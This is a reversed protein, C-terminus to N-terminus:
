KWPNGMNVDMLEKRYFKCHSNVVPVNEIGIPSYSTEAIRKTNRCNKSLELRCGMSDLWSLAEEVIENNETIGYFNGNPQQVLQNRDYFVYLSGNQIEAIASLAKIENPRFDQGEDVVIHRYDWDYADYNNLYDAVDERTKWHGKKASTLGYITHFDVGSAQAAHQQKLFDCLLRNFCLFLVRGTKALRKAKEVALLTKGTGAGGQIAAVRQEELYDLLGSQEPTMRLFQREQEEMVTSLSLILNFSPSLVDLVTDIDEQTHWPQETMGCYDFVQEIARQPNQMDKKLLVLEPKYEQPLGPQLADISTFWVASYVKYVRTPLESLFVFMAKEAQELPGRNKDSPKGNHYWVRDHYSIQGAKVELVLLGRKPHFITFDAEGQEIRGHDKTRWRASHFVFYDDPLSQFKEFLQEEGTSGHFGEYDVKAPIMRAM